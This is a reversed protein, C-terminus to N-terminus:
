LAKTINKTHCLVAHIIIQVGIICVGVYICLCSHVVTSSSM